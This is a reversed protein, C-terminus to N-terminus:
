YHKHVHIIIATGIPTNNNHVAYYNNDTVYQQPTSCLKVSVVAVILETFLCVFVVLESVM